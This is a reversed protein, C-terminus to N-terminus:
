RREDSGLLERLRAREDDSLAALLGDLKRRADPAKGAPRESGASDLGTVDEADHQVLAELVTGSALIETRDLKSQVKTRL